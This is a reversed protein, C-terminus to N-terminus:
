QWFLIPYGQNLNNTDAKWINPTSQNLTIIFSSDKLQESSLATDNAFVIDTDNYTFSNQLYYLNNYQEPSSEGITAGIHFKGSYNLNTFGGISYVTNIQGLNRGSIGGVYINATTITSESQFIINGTNYCNEITGSTENVGSVNGLRYDINKIHNSFISLTTKNICNEIIGGNSGCISGFNSSFYSHNNIHGTILCNCIIGHNIATIGGSSMYKNILTGFKSNINVNELILNEITGKNVPFLAIGCYKDSVNIEKVIKLNYLIHKNGNFIGKFCSYNDLSSNDFETAGICKFGNEFIFNKLNGYYGYKNYDTRDPNVYSKSDNFDLNRGLEITKGEYSNGNNVDYSFFILDEISNIIYPNNDSGDRTNNDSIDGPYEDISLESTIYNQINNLENMEQNEINKVNSIANNINSILGDSGSIM